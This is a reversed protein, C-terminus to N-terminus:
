AGVAKREPMAVLRIALTALVAAFMAAAVLFALLAGAVERDFAPDEVLRRYPQAGRHTAAISGAVLGELAGAVLGLGLYLALAVAGFLMAQAAGVDEAGGLTLTVDAAGCLLASLLASGVCASLANRYPRNPRAIWVEPNGEVPM